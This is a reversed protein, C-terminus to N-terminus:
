PHRLAEHVLPAPVAPQGVNAEALLAFTSPNQDPDFVEVTEDPFLLHLTM